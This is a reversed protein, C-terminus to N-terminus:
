ESAGCRGDTRMLFRFDRNNNSLEVSERTALSRLTQEGWRGYFVVQDPRFCRRALQTACANLTFDGPLRDWASGDYSWCAAVPRASAAPDAAPPSAPAAETDTSPSAGPPLPTIAGTAVNSAALAGSQDLGVDLAGTAVGNRKACASLPLEGIFQGGVFCRLPRMPDLKTDDDRGTQVVLGAQSAPPAEGAAHPHRVILLAFILGGALALGM